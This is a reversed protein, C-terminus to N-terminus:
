EKIKAKVMEPIKYPCQAAIPSVNSVDIGM